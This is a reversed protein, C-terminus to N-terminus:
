SSDLQVDYVFLGSLLVVGAGYSSLNISREGNTDRSRSTLLNCPRM